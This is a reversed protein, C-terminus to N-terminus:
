MGGLQLSFILVYNSVLNFVNTLIGGYMQPLTIGQCVSLIM